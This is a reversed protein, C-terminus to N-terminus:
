RRTEPMGKSHGSRLLTETGSTADDEAHTPDGRVLRLPWRLGVARSFRRALTHIARRLRGSLLRLFPLPDDTALWALEETGRIARVCQLVTLYRDRVYERCTDFEWDEVMWKRGEVAPDRPVEQGTLDLYAALAVDLGNRGVFLRFTCGIRPNPDLLKYLGDRPDFRFGIDLIGRYRIGRVLKLTLDLVEDNRLCVGLSTAGRYPPYQHLKRGTFAVLCDSQSDFYGDLMWVSDDRGPIYEQLMLNPREPDDLRQFEALLADASDVAVMKMGAQRQLRSGDIAKLMVPYQAQEAFERADRLTLPFRAEATPIGLDKALFYLEKKNVLSRVLDPDQEPFDFWERLKAAHEAVM